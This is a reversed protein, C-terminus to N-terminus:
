KQPFMNYHAQPCVAPSPAQDMYTASGGASEASASVFRCLFCLLAEAAKPLPEPPM